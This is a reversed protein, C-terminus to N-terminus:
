SNLSNYYKIESDFIKKFLDDDLKNFMALDYFSKGGKNNLSNHLELVEKSNEINIKKILIGLNDYVIVYNYDLTKLFDFISIGDENQKQLFYPDYEFFIVPKIKLFFDYGGRIIKTDYGDTDIKILKYNEYSNMQHMLTSLKKINMSTSTKADHSISATGRRRQINASFSSDEEGLFIKDAKVNHFQKINEKLINYYNDDGEICYIPCDFRGKLLAVTDGVNAGIDLISLNNYKEKIMSAIRTLNDNYLPYKILYYPLAHSFSMRMNVGKINVKVEPDSFLLVIRRCIRLIKYASLRIFGGPMLNLMWDSLKQAVM